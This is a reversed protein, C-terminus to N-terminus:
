SAQRPRHQKRKHPSFGVIFLIILIVHRKIRNSGKLLYYGALILLTLEFLFAARPFQWLGLGTKFSDFFLPMDPM